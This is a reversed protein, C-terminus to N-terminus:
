HNYFQRLYAIVNYGFSLNYARIRYFFIIKSNFTLPLNFLTMLLYNFVSCHSYNITYRQQNIGKVIKISSLFLSESSRHLM